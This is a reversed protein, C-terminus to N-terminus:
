VWANVSAGPKLGSPRIALLPRASPMPLQRSPLEPHASRATLLPACRQQEVDLVYGMTRVQDPVAPLLWFGSCRYHVFLRPLARADGQVFGPKPVVERHPPTLLLWYPWDPAAVCGLAPGRECAAPVLRSGQDHCFTQAAAPAALCM